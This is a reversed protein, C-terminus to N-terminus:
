AVKRIREARWGHPARGIYGLAPGADHSEAAMPNVSWAKAVSLVHQETPYLDLEGGIDGRRGKIGRLEIFTLGLKREGPTLKGADWVIGSDGVAFARLRRGREFRAWAFFDIIPFSAFYQAASFSKSLKTLLPTAKDVFSGGAPLPLAVGAVLTWGGTPPSIFVYTDALASDYIAGIGSNWNAARLETVGLTAALAQVDTTKVALWSMGTGFPLPADPAIDLKLRRPVLRPALVTAAVAGTLVVLIVVTPLV